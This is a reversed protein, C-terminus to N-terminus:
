NHSPVFSEESSTISSFTVSSEATRKIDERTRNVFIESEEYSIRVIRETSILIEKGYYWHGAHVVIERIAWSKDDVTFGRVLGVVGESAHIEYGGVSTISRLHQNDGQDHGERPLDRPPSLRETVPFDSSGWIGKGEWYPSWGNHGYYEAEYHRSVTRQPHIPPTRAIEDRTLAIHLVKNEPDLRSFVHPSLLVQRDTLWTGTAAVMYRVAWSIDDFYFDKIQGIEGDAAVLKYGTLKTINLLM